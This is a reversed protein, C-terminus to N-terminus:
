DDSSWEKELRELEARPIWFQGNILHAKIIGKDCWRRITIRSIGLYDAVYGTRLLKPKENM